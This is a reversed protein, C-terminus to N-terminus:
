MEAGVKGAKVILSQTPSARRGSSAITTATVAAHAKGSLELDSVAM